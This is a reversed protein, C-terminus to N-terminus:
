ERLRSNEEVRVFVCVSSFAQEHRYKDPAKNLVKHIVQHRRKDLLYQQVPQAFIILGGALGAEPELLLSNKSLIKHTAGRGAHELAARHM